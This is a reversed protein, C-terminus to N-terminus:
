KKAPAAPMDKHMQDMQKRMQGMKKQMGADMAMDKHMMGSMNNMMGGMKKMQSSMKKTMDQSMNGGEMMDSMDKMQSSMDRMMGSMQQAGPGDKEGMNMAGKESMGMADPGGHKEAYAPLAFALGIILFASGVKRLVTQKMTKVGRNAPVDGSKNSRKFCSIFSGAMQSLQLFRLLDNIIDM